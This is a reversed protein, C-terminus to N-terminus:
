VKRTPNPNNMYRTETAPLPTKRLSGKFCECDATRARKRISTPTSPLASRAAADADQQGAMTNCRGLLAQYKAETGHVLLEAEETRQQLAHVERTLDRQKELAEQYKAKFDQSRAMAYEFKDADDQSKEAAEQSKGAAEQSKEAAEKLARQFKAEAEGGHRIAGEV